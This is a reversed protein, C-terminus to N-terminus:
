GLDALRRAGTTTAAMRQDVYEQWLGGTRLGPDVPEGARQDLTALPAPAGSFRWAHPPHSNKRSDATNNAHPGCILRHFVARSLGRTAERALMGRTESARW